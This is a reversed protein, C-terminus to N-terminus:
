DVWQKSILYLHYNLIKPAGHAWEQLVGILAVGARALAARLERAIRKTHVTTLTPVLAVASGM